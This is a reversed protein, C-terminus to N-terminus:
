HVTAGSTQMEGSSMTELAEAVTRWARAQEGFGQKEMDSITKGIITFAHSGFTAFTLRAAAWINENPIRHDYLEM